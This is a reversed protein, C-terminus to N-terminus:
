KHGEEAISDLGFGLAEIVKLRSTIECGIVCETNKEAPSGCGEQM